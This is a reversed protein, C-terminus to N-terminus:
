SRHQLLYPLNISAVCRNASSQAADWQVQIFGKRQDEGRPELHSWFHAVSYHREFEAFAIGTTINGDQQTDLTAIREGCLQCRIGPKNKQAESRLHDEM